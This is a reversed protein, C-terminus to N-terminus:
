SILKILIQTVNLAVSKKIAGSKKIIINKDATFIRAPRINSKVPLSGTDFDSSTLPVSFTDSYQQSTIQCLIIDDGPLDALVLAPRRKSGSLDSFPFPIVVVDGKVFKAM